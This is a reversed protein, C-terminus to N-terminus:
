KQEYNKNFYEGAEPMTDLDICDGYEDIVGQKYALEVMEKEADMLEKALKSALNFGLDPNAQDYKELKKILKALPTKQM